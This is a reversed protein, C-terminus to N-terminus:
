VSSVLEQDYLWVNAGNIIFRKLSRTPVFSVSESVNSFSVDQIVSQNETGNKDVAVTTKALGDGANYLITGSYSVCHVYAYVGTNRAAAPYLDELVLAVDGNTLGTIDLYLSVDQNLTTEDVYEKTAVTNPDDSVDPTAVGLIKRFGSITIDGSSTITLPNTTTITTGNLNINDVDLSTLTGISTLGSATTVGAGLATSSLVIANNIKYSHGVPLDFNASSTWNGTGGTNLWTISKDDGTARVVIGAGNVGVDDLLVSDSTIALEILKDEVRLTSVDISTTDGEVIFNGTVRLDGTVDLSYQPNSQWIGVKTESNDVTIVDVPFLGQKIQIKLDAASNQTQMFVTNGSVSVKFDSDDGVVFGTDNKVHLTGTTTNNTSTKLFNDPTYPNSAGDLLSLATSATGYYRFNAYATSINIGANITTGFNTITTAATFEVKSIIAIATGGIMLRAVTRENGSIDIITQVDFGTVGQGYTYIPGALITQTGDSFSVQKNTSDVWIDGALLAPATASVITTDASRFVLGNYVKLRGESSDYWLQGTIPYLPESTSAFNELLKVFNENFDEGYGTYNKGVLTLDTSAQDIRGDILEVLLTGDTKNITYSM